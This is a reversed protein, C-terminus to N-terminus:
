LGKKKKKELQKLHWDREKAEDKLSRESLGIRCSDAEECFNYCNPGLEIGVLKM